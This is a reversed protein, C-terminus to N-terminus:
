FWTLLANKKRFGFQNDYIIKFTELFYLLRSDMIKEFVKSLVCLSSVHRYHNFLVPDDAKYLPIVNALKLQDPFIGETM